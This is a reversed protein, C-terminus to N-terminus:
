SHITRCVGDWEKFLEANVVGMQYIIPNAGNTTLLRPIKYRNAHEDFFELCLSNTDIIEGSPLRIVKNVKKLFDVVNVKYARNEFNFMAFKEPKETQKQEKSMDM